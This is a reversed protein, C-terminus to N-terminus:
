NRILFMSVLIANHLTHMIIPTLINNNKVYLLAFAIGLASYPIIFLIEYFNSFETVAHLAGFVMGSMLVYLWKSEFLDRFARRFIIEESLPAFLVTSFVMYIPAKTILNRVAEENSAMESPTLYVIAFNTIVMTLLGLIWYKFMDDIYDKYNDKFDYYAERLDKSYTKILIIIFIIDALVLYLTKVVVSLSKIDINLLELPLTLLISYIFYALFIMIGRTFKKM